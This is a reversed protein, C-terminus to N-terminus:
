YQHPRAKAVPYLCIVIDGPRPEPFWSAWLQVLRKSKGSESVAVLAFLSCYGEDSVDVTDLLTKMLPKQTIRSWKGDPFMGIQYRRVTGKM